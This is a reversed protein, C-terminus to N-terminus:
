TYRGIMLVFVFLVMQLNMQGGSEMNLVCLYKSGYWLYMLISRCNTVRNFGRLLCLIPLIYMYWHAYSLGKQQVVAVTVIENAVVTVESSWYCTFAYCYNFATRWLNFVNRECGLHKKNSFGVKMQPRKLIYLQEFVNLNSVIM